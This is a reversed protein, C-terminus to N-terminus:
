AFARRTMSLQRRTGCESVREPGSSAVKVIHQDGVTHSIHEPL